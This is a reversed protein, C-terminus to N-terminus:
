GRPNEAIYGATILQEAAEDLLNRLEVAPISITQYAPEDLERALAMRFKIIRNIMKLRVNLFRRAADTINVKQAPKRLKSRM